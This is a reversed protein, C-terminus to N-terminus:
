LAAIVAGRVLAGRGIEIPVRAVSPGAAPAVSVLAVIRSRALAHRGPPPLPLPARRDRPRFAGGRSLALAVRVPRARGPRRRGRPRRVADGVVVAAPRDAGGRAVLDRPVDARRLRALDASRAPAARRRRLLDG